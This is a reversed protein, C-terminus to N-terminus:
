QTIKSKRRMDEKKRKEWRNDEKEIKKPFLIIKKRPRFM